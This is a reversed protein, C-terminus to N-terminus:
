VPTNLTVKDGDKINNENLTKFRLVQNGNHLFLNNTDRLNDYIKYLKEEVNAFIDTGLCKIDEQIFPSVFNIVIIDKMDYKETKIKNKEILEQMKDISSKLGKIVKDKERILKSNKEENEKLVKITNEQEKNKKEYSKKNENIINNLRIIEKQKQNIENAM